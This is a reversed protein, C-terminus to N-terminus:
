ATAAISLSSTRARRALYIATIIPGIIFLAVLAIQLVTTITSPGGTTTCHVTAHGVSKGTVVNVGIAQGSCSTTEIDAGALVIVFVSAIGGPVILTGIIKDRTTWLRSSWLLILGVLWGVGFAFGGLPLLIIAAWERLGRRDIRETPERVTPQEADVIDGPPGLRELAELAEDDSADTAISRALHEEIEALLDHLRDPALDRGAHRLRALYDRALPHLPRETM